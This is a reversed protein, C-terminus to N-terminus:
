WGIYVHLFHGFASDKNKDLYQRVAREAESVMGKEALLKAEALQPDQEKLIEASGPSQSTPQPTAKLSEIPTQAPLVPCFMLSFSFFLVLCPTTLTGGAGSHNKYTPIRFPTWAHKELSHIRFANTFKNCTSSSPPHSVPIGGEGGHNKSFNSETPTITSPSALHTVALLNREGRPASRFDSPAKSVSVYLM